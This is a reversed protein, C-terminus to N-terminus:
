SISKQPRLRASAETTANRARSTNRRRDPLRLRAFIFTNSKTIVTANPEVTASVIRLGSMVSTSPTNASPM